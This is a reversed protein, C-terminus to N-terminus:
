VLLFLILEGIRQLGLGYDRLRMVEYRNRSRLVHGPAPLPRLDDIGLM